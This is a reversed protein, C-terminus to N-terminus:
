HSDEEMLIVSQPTGVRQWNPLSHLLDVELNVKPLVPREAMAVPIAFYPESFHDAFVAQWCYVPDVVSLPGPQRDPGEPPM